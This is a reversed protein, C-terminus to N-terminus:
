KKIWESIDNEIAQFMLFHGEANPHLYDPMLSKKVKSNEDVFINGIDRYHIHNDKAPFQSVIKNTAKNINDRHNPKYGYPFIGLLLIQTDPLKERIIKCIKWTAAALEEPQTIELYHNGDTNNTGILLLAVKPNIGDLEGNELRWIVNETRDGSFGMNVANYRNLYKEWVATRDTNDLTHLISNGVLILEPNKTKNNELIQEHRAKWWDQSLKDTAKAAPNDATQGCGLLITFVITILFIRKM